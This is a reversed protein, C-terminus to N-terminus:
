FSDPSANLLEMYDYQFSSGYIVRYRQVFLDYTTKASSHRGSLTYAKCKLYLAKENLDDFRFITDALSIVFDPMKECQAEGAYDGLYQILFDATESKVSDTWPTVIDPLLSGGQVTSMLKEAGEHTLPTEKNFSRFQLYDVFIEESCFLWYGSTNDLSFNGLMDLISRLKRLNVARNNRASKLDKDPWLEDKLRSSTIGKEASNIIILALLERLMPSFQKTINEGKSDYVCFGGFFLISSKKPLSPLAFLDSKAAPADNGKANAGKRRRKIIVVFSLILDIAIIGALWLWIRYNKTPQISSVKLNEYEVVPPINPDPRLSLKPLISYRYGVDVSLGMDGITVIQDSLQMVAQNSRFYLTISVPISSPRADWTLSDLTFSRIDQGNVIMLETDDAKDNVSKPVSWNILIEKRLNDSGEFQFLIGAFNRVDQRRLANFEVRLSDSFYQYRGNDPVGGADVYSKEGTVGSNVVEAVGDSGAVKLCLLFAFVILLIKATRIKM